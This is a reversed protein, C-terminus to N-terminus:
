GPAPFGSRCCCEHSSCPLRPPMPVECPGCSSPSKSKRGGTSSCSATDNGFPFDVVGATAIETAKEARGFGSVARRCVCLMASSRCPVARLRDRTSSSMAVIRVDSVRRALSASLRQQDAPIRGQMAGKRREMGQACGRGPVSKACFGTRNSLAPLKAARRVCRGGLSSFLASLSLFLFCFSSCQVPPNRPGAFELNFLFSFPGPVEPGGRWFGAPSLLAGGSRGGEGKGCDLPAYSSGRVRARALLAVFWYAV